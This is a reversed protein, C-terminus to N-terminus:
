KKGKPKANEVSVAANVAGTLAVTFFGMASKFGEMCRYLLMPDDINDLEDIVEDETKHQLSAPLSAVVSIIMLKSVDGSDALAVYDPYKERIRGSFRLGFDLTIEEGFLTTKIKKEGLM